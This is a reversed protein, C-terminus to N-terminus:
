SMERKTLQLNSDQDRKPPDIVSYTVQAHAQQLPVLPCENLDQPPTEKKFLLKIHYIISGIFLIFTVITSTYAVATQKKPDLKFDYLSFASLALLNFYLVTDVADVFSNKYVRLGFIKGFLFIGGILIISIVPFTQPNASVTVSATVYLIM